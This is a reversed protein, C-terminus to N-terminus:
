ASAQHRVTTVYGVFNALEDIARRADPNIDFSLQFMHMAKHWVQVWVPVRAASLQQALAFADNILLEDTGVQILFPGLGRLDDAAPLVPPAGAPGRAAFIRYGFKLTTYPLLADCSQAAARRKIELDASTLPSLLMQGAPVALGAERIAVATSAALLAGVSDGGLVIHQPPYGLSLLQRYASLGDSVAAALGGQPTLRYGVNFVQAATVASLKSAFRRHSNLGPTLLVTGPFYIIVRQSGRAAPAVVREAPCDPLPVRTVSTQPLAPLLRLPRDIAGFAARHLVRPAVRNLLMALVTSLLVLPRAFLVALVALARSQWCAPGVQAVGPQDPWDLPNVAGLTGAAPSLAM